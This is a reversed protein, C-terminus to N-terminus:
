FRLLANLQLLKANNAYPRGTRLDTFDTHRMQRTEFSAGLEAQWSAPARRGVVYAGGILFGTNRLSGYQRDRNLYATELTANDSYFHAARQTHFRLAADVRWQAGLQSGVGWESTHAKIGWNDWFYRYEGRVQFRAWGSGLLAASRLKVARSGRTSPTREPVTAGFVTATGYPNGLYGADQMAEYQASATWRPSVVQTLGLRYRWQTSRESFLADGTKRLSASGRTFGLNVTTLGGVLDHAMDLAVSRGQEDPSRQSLLSFSLLANRVLADANLELATRNQAPAATGAAVDVAAAQHSESGYTLGLAYRDALTKRLALGAGRIKLQDGGNFDYAALEARDEPLALGNNPRHGQSGNGGQAAEAQLVLQERQRQGLHDPALQLANDLLRERAAGRTPSTPAAAATSDPQPTSPKVVPSQACAALLALACACLGPTLRNLLRTSRSM